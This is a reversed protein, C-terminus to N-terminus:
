ESRLSDLNAQANQAQFGAPDMELYRQYATIANDSEQMRKYNEGIMYQSNAFGEDKSLAKRYHQLSEQYKGENLLCEGMSDYANAESTDVAIYRQFMERAQDYNEAGLYVYGLMNLTTGDTPDAELAAEFHTTAEETRGAANLALGLTLHTAGDAPERALVHELYQQALQLAGIRLLRNGVNRYQDLDDENALAIDIEARIDEWLEIRERARKAATWDPYETIIEVLRNIGQEFEGSQNTEIITITYHALVAVGANPFQTIIQQSTELAGQQDRAMMLERSQLFLDFATWDYDLQDIVLQRKEQLNRAASTGSYNEAIDRYITAAELMDGTNEYSEALSFRVQGAPEGTTIQDRLQSYYEIAKEADSTSKLATAIALSVENIWYDTLQDPFGTGVQLAQMYYTAADDSQGLEQSCEAMRRWSDAAWVSEPDRDIVDQYLEMAAKPNQNALFEVNAANYLAVVSLPNDPDTNAAESFHKVSEGWQLNWLDAEGMRFLDFVDATAMAVICCLIVIVAPLWRKM